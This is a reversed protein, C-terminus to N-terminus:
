SPIQFLVLILITSFRTLPTIYLLRKNYPYCDVPCRCVSSWGQHRVIRWEIKVECKTVKTEQINIKKECCMVSQLTSTGTIFDRAFYKYLVSCVHTQTYACTYKNTFIDEYYINNHVPLLLYKLHLKKGDGRALPFRLGELIKGM